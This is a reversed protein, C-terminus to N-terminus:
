GIVVQTTFEGTMSYNPKTIEAQIGAQAATWAALLKKSMGGRGNGADQNRLEREKIMALTTVYNSSDVREILNGQEDVIGGKKTFLKLARVGCAVAIHSALGDNDGGTFLEMLETNSLADNENVLSVVRRDHALLLARKLSPGEEVDEIEHHTTLLGGASVGVKDFAAEWARMISASGLQALTIECWDSVDIGKAEQRAIGAAVAGSTVVILKDPGYSEVLGAAYGDILGQNVGHGNAVLERGFKAVTYEEM